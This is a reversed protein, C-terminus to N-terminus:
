LVYKPNVEGPKGNPVTPRIYDVGTRPSWFYQLVARDGKRKDHINIVEAGRAFDNGRRLEDRIFANFGAMTPFTAWGPKADKSTTIFYRGPKTKRSFAALASKSWGGEALEERIIKTIIEELKQKASKNQSHNM